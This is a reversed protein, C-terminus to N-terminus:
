PGLLELEFNDTVKGLLYSAAVASVRAIISATIAEEFTTPFQLFFSPYIPSFQLMAFLPLLM